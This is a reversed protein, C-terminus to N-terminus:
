ARAGGDRGTKGPKRLSIRIEAPTEDEVHVEPEAETVPEPEVATETEASTEPETEAGSAEGAASETVSGSGDETKENLIQLIEKSTMSTSLTYTGPYIEYDYFWQQIAAVRSDRILGSDKLRGIVEHASEGEKVEFPLSRGPAEEAPTSCFVEHGFAYGRGVGEILLMLLVGYLILRGATGIVTGTVKNIEQTVRSM